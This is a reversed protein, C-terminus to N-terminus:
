PLTGAAALCARSVSSAAAAAAARGGGAGLVLASLGLGLEHFIHHWWALSFLGFEGKILAAYSMGLKHFAPPLRALRWAFEAKACLWFCSVSENKFLCVMGPSANSCVRATMNVYVTAVASSLGTSVTTCAAHSPSAQSARAVAALVADAFVGHWTARLKELAGRTEPAAQWVTVYM